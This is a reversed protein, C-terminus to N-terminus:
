SNNDVFSRINNSCMLLKNALEELAKIDEPSLTVCFQSDYLEQIVNNQFSKYENAFIESYYNAIHIM